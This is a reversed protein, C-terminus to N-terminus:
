VSKGNLRLELRPITLKKLPAVRSKAAVFKVDIEGSSCESRLYACTGFAGKSADSFLILTSPIVTAHPRICRELSVNNLQEMEKFYFDWKRSVALALKDDWGVGEKWLEQLSIKVRVLFPAVFGIPDYVRAIQSLIKRKTLDVTCSKIAEIEVKYKLTDESSNWVVGLVKAETRGKTKCLNKNSQWGKVKITRAADPNVTEGEEATRQPAIQAMAPAPKDGFTLVNMVYTDPPRDTELNRWLFRHVHRDELPILVRHYMKSIDATLAVKNARFRLIVGFLDNLMDPGKRWYDNLRHAQYSSSSNFVIRVPTSASDARLVAHHFIYHVAGKYENIDVEKLKSAFNMEEMELM